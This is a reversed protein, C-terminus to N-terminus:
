AISDATTRAIDAPPQGETKPSHPKSRGAKGEASMPGLISDAISSWIEIGAQAQEIMVNTWARALNSLEEGAHRPLDIVLDQAEQRNSARKEQVPQKTALKEELEKIRAKLKSNEAETEKSNEPNAM